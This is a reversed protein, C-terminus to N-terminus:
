LLLKFAMVCFSMIRIRLYEVSATKAGRESSTSVVVRSLSQFKELKGYKTVKVKTTM